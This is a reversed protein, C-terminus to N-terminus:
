IMRFDNFVLDKALIIASDACYMSYYTSIRLVKSEKVIFMGSMKQFDEVSKLSMANQFVEHAGTVFLIRHIPITLNYFSQEFNFGFGFITDYNAYEIKINGEFFDVIDVNFGLEFYSKAVIHSTIHNQHTFNNESIFPSTIYSILVTKKFETQYLNKIFISPIENQELKFLKNIKKLISRKINM